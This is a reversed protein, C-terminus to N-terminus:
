YLNSVYNVTQYGVDGDLADWIDETITRMDQIFGTYAVPLNRLQNGSNDAVWRGHGDAFGVNLGERHFYQIYSKPAGSPEQVFTDSVLAARYRALPGRDYSYIYPDGAQLSQGGLLAPYDGSRAWRMTRVAYSFKVDVTGAKVAQRFVSLNTYNLLVARQYSISSAPGNESPCYASRMSTLYGGFLLAGIGAPHPATADNFGGPTDITRNHFAPFGNDPLLAKHDSSYSYMGQVHGRVNALCSMRKATERSRGLAPLLISVLLAIVSIVVLLEILTFAHSHRRM